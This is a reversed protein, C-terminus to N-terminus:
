EWEACTCSTKVVTFYFKIQDSIWRGSSGWQDTCYRQGGTPEEQVNGFYVKGTDLPANKCDAGTLIGVAKSRSVADRYNNVMNECGKRAGNRAYEGLAYNCDNTIISCTNTEEKRVLEIRKCVKPKAPCEKDWDSWQKNYCCTRTETKYSCGSPTYKKDTAGVSTCSEANALASMIGIVLMSLIVKKM